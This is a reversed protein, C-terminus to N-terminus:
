LINIKLNVGQNFCRLIMANLCHKAINSRNNLLEKEKPRIAIVYNIEKEKMAKIFSEKDEFVETINKGVTSKTANDYLKEMYSSNNNNKLDLVRRISLDVQRDLARMDNDFGDKVHVVTITDGVIKLLDAFEIYEPKIKHLHIYDEDLSVKLNFADEDGTTWNSTLVTTIKGDQLKGVLTKNLRESYTESLHYYDGYFIYYNEGDVEIEGSLHKLLSEDTIEIDDRKSVLHVQAVFESFNDLTSETGDLWALYASYIFEYLDIDDTEALSTTGDVSLCYTDANIFDNTSRNFLDFNIPKGLSISEYMNEIVKINNNNVVSAKTKSNIPMILNYKDQMSDFNFEDIKSLLHLLDNFNLSSSFQLFNKATIKVSSKKTDTNLNLLEKVTTKDNLRGTIEKFITDLANVDIFDIENSYITKSSHVISAMGNSDLATIKFLKEFMSVVLMGFKPICYDEIARFGQGTTIVFTNKESSIFIISSATHTHFTVIEQDDAVFPRCFSSLKSNPRKETNFFVRVSFGNTEVHEKLMQENYKTNSESIILDIISDIAVDNTDAFYKKIIKEKDLLFINHQKTNKKRAMIKMGKKNIYQM